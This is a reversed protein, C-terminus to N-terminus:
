EFQISDVIQQIEQELRARGGDTIAVGPRLDRHTEGAVFILTGHVDVVWVRITDGLETTVWMAGGTQAKWNYFFGPDCGADERVVVVVHKAPYGGVTVDEPGTVLETGPAAAVGAAVDEATWQEIPANICPDAYTGDPFGAWFVMAEAGQPGAVSKSILLSGFPEWGASPVRFSFPVGDVYLSPQDITYDDLGRNVGAPTPSPSPRVTPSPSPSATTQPGGVVGFLPMLSIGAVAIVLVAAAGIALKAANTRDAVKSTSWWPRRETDIDLPILADELFSDASEHEDTGFWSRVFHTMDPKFRRRSGQGVAAGAIAMANIPRIGGRSYERLDRALRPDLGDDTM